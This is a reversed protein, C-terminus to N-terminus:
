PGLCFALQRQNLAGLPPEVLEFSHVDAEPEHSYNWDRQLNARLFRANNTRGDVLVYTGPLLLWEMRAIDAAVVTRDNHRFHLGGVEGAVDHQMPGDLYIFDPCVNPLDNYYHVLRDAFLGISVDSRHMSARDRCWDPIRTATTELWAASGDVSHLEFPNNRRLALFAPADAFDLRNEELAAAMVATSYGSGFELITTVRRRRVLDYLRALDDLDPPYPTVNELSVADNPGYVPKEPERDLGLIEIVRRRPEITDNM